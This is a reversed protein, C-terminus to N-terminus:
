LAASCCGFPAATTGQKAWGPGSGKHQTRPIKQYTHIPLACAVQAVAGKQQDHAVALTGKAVSFQPM